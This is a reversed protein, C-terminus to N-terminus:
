PQDPLRPLTSGKAINLTQIPTANVLAAAKKSDAPTTAAATVAAKMLSKDVENTLWRSGAVGVLLAGVMNAVSFTLRPATNDTPFLVHNAYPGYLGWSILASVTSVFVNGLYGPRWLSAGSTIEQKPLAFGNDSLFANILGGIAGFLAIAIIVAPTTWTM